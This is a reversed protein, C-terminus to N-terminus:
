ECQRIRDQKIDLRKTATKNVITTTIIISIYSLYMILRDM